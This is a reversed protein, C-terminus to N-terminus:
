VYTWGTRLNWSGLHYPGSHVWIVGEQAKSLHMTGVGLEGALRFPLGPFIFTRTLSPKM